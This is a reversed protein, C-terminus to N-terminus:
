VHARGIEPAQRGESKGYDLYHQYAGAGYNKVDPYQALYAASDFTAAPSKGFEVTQNGLPGRINPNNIRGQARATELNAAGQAAAAGTYDPAPPPSPSSKGM